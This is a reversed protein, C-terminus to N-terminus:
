KSLFKKEEIFDDIYEQDISKYDEFGDHSIIEGLNIFKYGNMSEEPTQGEKYGIQEGTSIDLGNIEDCMLNSYTTCGVLENTEIDYFSYIYSSNNAFAPGYTIFLAPNFEDSVLTEQRRCKRIEDNNYLIFIDSITYMDSAEAVYPINKIEDKIHAEEAHKQGYIFVPISLSILVAALGTAFVKDQFGYDDKIKKHFKDIYKIKM